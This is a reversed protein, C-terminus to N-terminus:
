GPDPRPSLLDLMWRWAKREQAANAREPEPIGLREKALDSIYKRWRIRPRRRPRRGTTCAQFVERPVCGAPMRSLHRFWRLQSWEIRHLLPGVGLGERIVSSRVKDRLSVGAVRRLFRMEAAKIRSRTRENM